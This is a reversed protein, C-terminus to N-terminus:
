NNSAGRRAGACRLTRPRTPPLRACPTSRPGSERRCSSISSRSRCSHRPESRCRRCSAVACSRNISSGRWRMSRRWGCTSTRITSWCTWRARRDRRGRSRRPARDLQRGEITREGLDAAVAVAHGDPPHRAVRPAAGGDGLHDPHGLHLHAGPGFGGRGVVIGSFSLRPLRAGGPPRRRGDCEAAAADITQIRAQDGGTQFADLTAAFRRRMADSDVTAPRIEGLGRWIERMAEFERRCDPCGSLHEDLRAAAPADLEGNLSSGIDVTADECRM